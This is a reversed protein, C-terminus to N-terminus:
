YIKLKSIRDEDSDMVIVYDFSENFHIYRLGFANCRAHGRNEKMNIIKISSFSQPKKIQPRKATSCDNVVICEFKYNHLSKTVDNIENLVKILSDWDNYVPLLLIIKKM